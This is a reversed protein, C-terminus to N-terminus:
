WINIHCPDHDEGARACSQFAWVVLFQKLSDQSQSFETEKQEGALLKVKLPEISFGNTPM